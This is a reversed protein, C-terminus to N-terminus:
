TPHHSTPPGLTLGNALLLAPTGSLLLHTRCGLGGASAWGGPPGGEWMGGRQSALSCVPPTPTRRPQPHNDWIQSVGRPAGSSPRPCRFRGPSSCSSVSSGEGTVTLSPRTRGPPLGLEGGGAPTDGRHNERGGAEEECAGGRGGRPGDGAGFPALDAPLTPLPIQADRFGVAKSLPLPTLM